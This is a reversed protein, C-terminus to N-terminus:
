KQKVWGGIHLTPGFRFGLARSELPQSVVFALADAQDKRGSEQGNIEDPM